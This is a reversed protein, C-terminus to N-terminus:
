FRYNMQLCDKTETSKQIQQYFDGLWSSFTKSYGFSTRLHKILDQYKWMSNTDLYFEFPVGLM